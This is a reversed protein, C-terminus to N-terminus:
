SLINYRQSRREVLQNDSRLERLQNLITKKMILTQKDINIQDNQSVVPIVNDILDQQWLEYSTIKLASMAEYKKQKNKWLIEAAGEPSIVSFISNELM